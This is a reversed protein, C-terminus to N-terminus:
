YRKNREIITVGHSALFKSHVVESNEVSVRGSKIVYKFDEIFHGLLNYHFSLASYFMSFDVQKPSVYALIIFKAKLFSNYMLIKLPFM